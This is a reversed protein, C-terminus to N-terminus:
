FNKISALITEVIQYRSPSAFKDKHWIMALNVSFLKDGVPKLGHREAVTNPLLGLFDTEGVLRAIVEYDRMPQLKCEPYKKLLKQGQLMDPNYVLTNGAKENKKWVRVHESDLPKMILDANKVPNIVLGIDIKLAAVKRTIELSTDFETEVVLAPFSSLLAPLFKHYQNLAISSHCGIKLVGSPGMSNQINSSYVTGWYTKTQVLSQHLAQGFETLEIGRINRYFLKQGLEQELKQIIKSLGAQQIDLSEAARLISGADVCAIFYELDRSLPTMLFSKNSKASSPKHKM